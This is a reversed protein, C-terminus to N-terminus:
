LNFPRRSVAHPKTGGEATLMAEEGDGEPLATRPKYKLCVYLLMFQFIVMLISQVLVARAPAPQPSSNRM